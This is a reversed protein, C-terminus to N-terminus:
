VLCVNNVSESLICWRAHCDSCTWYIWVRPWSSEQNKAPVVKSPMQVTKQTSLKVWLVQTIAHNLNWVSKFPEMCQPCSRLRTTDLLWRLDVRPLNSSQDWPWFFSRELWKVVNINRIIVLSSQMYNSLREFSKILLLKLM